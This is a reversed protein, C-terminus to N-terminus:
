RAPNKSFMASWTGEGSGAREDSPGQGNAAPHVTVSGTASGGVRDSSTRRQARSSTGSPCASAEIHGSQPNCQHADAVVEVGDAVPTAVLVVRQRLSLHPGVFTLDLAGLM